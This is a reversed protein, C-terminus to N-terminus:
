LMRFANDSTSFKIIVIIIHSARHPRHKHVSVFLCAFFSSPWYGAMKVEHKTLLGYNNITRILALIVEGKWFRLEKTFHYDHNNVWTGLLSYVSIDVFQCFLIDYM